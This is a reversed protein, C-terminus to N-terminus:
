TFQMKASSVRYAHYTRMENMIQNKRDKLGNQHSRSGKM